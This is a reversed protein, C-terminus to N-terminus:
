VSSWCQIATADVDNAEVWADIALALKAAKRVSKEPIEDPVRGYDHIGAIREEVQRDDEMNLAAFIIESLDVVSVTIGSAQLLKESFRVTHFPDPRQGIAGLRAGSVGSVVRCVRAFFEIDATFEESDIPCSHLTTNTFKIGHQYLNNCVSLKGCFADRRHELDLKDLDDDCAQVLVPVGLDAMDITQTVGQEDGFNPLVVIIGDIEDQKERFLRACKRADEYTEIAGNPTADAPPIVYDYGMGDLKALFQKRGEAALWDPFFDRTSVIVGFTVGNGM